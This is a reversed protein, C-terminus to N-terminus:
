GHVERTFTYGAGRITQIHQDYNQVTLKQRLRKVVADVTRDSVDTYIGWVHSLLQERTYTKDAHTVFFHLLKYEIPSLPLKQGSISATHKDVNLTLGAMHIEHTPPLFPGRRAVAKIRAKLEAISFPKTMYDDAGATLAKVKSDEEAKATLMIIPIHQFAEQQKLWKIFDIGSKGPLMWDLLIVDPVTTGMQEMATTVSDTDILTFEKGSLAFRIMDRIAEEDEVLLLALPKM